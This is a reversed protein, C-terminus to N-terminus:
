LSELAAMIEPWIYEKALISRDMWYSTYVKDDIHKLTLAMADGDEAMRAVTSWSVAQEHEDDSLLGRCISDMYAAKSMICEAAWKELARKSGLTIPDVRQVPIALLECWEVAEPMNWAACLSLQQRLREPNEHYRLMDGLTHERRAADAM